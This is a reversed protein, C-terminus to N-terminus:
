LDGATATTPEVLPLRPMGFGRSKARVTARQPSERGNAARDRLTFASVLGSLYQAEQQMATAAAAAQEVLAANQQTVADMEVIVGNVQEIGETQESSAVSIDAITQSVGTASTVVEEMAVGAQLVHRSGEAVQAVSDHILDKIEKAASASRHALNRVEDAVVGFGRGHQGARAAEVAANLALINTQFAIGEIVAIIEVIRQSSGDILEMTSAVKGVTQRGNVAKESAEHALACARAANAANRRVSVTLEEMTSTTEELSSAQQETRNSLDVNGQAIETAANAVKDARNRVDSVIRSLSDRMRHLALLLQGCEDRAEVAAHGTLDGAAIKNAIEVANRLPHVVAKTLHRTVAIALAFVIALAAWGIAALRRGAARSEEYTRKVAAEQLPLLKALPKLLAVHVAPWDQELMASVRRKDDASYAAELNAFFRGAEILGKDITGILARDEASWKAVKSDRKFREWASPIAQTAEALHNKNGVVPMQDLLYAAMRFRIEKLAGDMAALASMPMVQHRYVSNLALEGSHISFANMAGLVGMTMLSLAAAIYIRTKIQINKLVM